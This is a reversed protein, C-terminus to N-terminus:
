LGLSDLMKRDRELDELTYHIPVGHEKLFSHAQMRTTFGLWRQLRSEGILRQRYAEIAVSELVHRSLEDGWLEQLHSGIADPIEIQM